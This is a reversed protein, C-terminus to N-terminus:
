QNKFRQTPGATMRYPAGQVSSANIELRYDQKDAFTVDAGSYKVKAPSPHGSGPITITVGELRKQRRRELDHRLDGPSHSTRLGRLGPILPQINKHPMTVKLNSSFRQNLTLGAGEEEDHGGQQPLSFRKNLTIGEGRFYLEKVRHVLTIIEQAFTGAHVDGSEPNSRSAEPLFDLRQRGVNVLDLSLQRDASYCLLSTHQAPQSMDVKITLTEETVMTMNKSEPEEWVNPRPRDVEPDGRQLRQARSGPRVQELRRDKDTWRPEEEEVAKSQSRYAARPEERSVDQYGRSSQEFNTRNKPFKGSNGVPNHRFRGRAPHPCGAGRQNTPVDQKDFRAFNTRERPPPSRKSEASDEWNDPFHRKRSDEIVDPRCDSTQFREQSSSAPGSRRQRLDFDGQRGNDLHQRQPANRNDPIGQDHAFVLANKIPADRRRNSVVMTPSYRQDGFDKHERGFGSHHHGDMERRPRKSPPQVDERQRSRNVSETNREGRSGRQEDSRVAPSVDRFQGLGRGEGDRRWSPTAQSLDLLSNMPQRPLQERLFRLPSFPPRGRSNFNQLDEGLGRRQRDGDSGGDRQPSGRPVRRDTSDRRPSPRRRYRGDQDQERWFHGQPSSSSRRQGEPLLDEGFRREEDRCVPRRDSSNVHQQGATARYPGYENWPFRRSQPSPSMQRSM